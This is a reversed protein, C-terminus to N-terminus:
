LESVSFGLDTLTQPVPTFTQSFAVVVLRIMGFLCNLGMVTAM